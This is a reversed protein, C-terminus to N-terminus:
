NMGTLGHGMLFNSWILALRLLVITLDLTFNIAHRMDRIERMNRAEAESM